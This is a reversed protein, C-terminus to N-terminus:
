EVVSFWSHKVDGCLAQIKLYESGFGVVIEVIWRRIRRLGCFINQVVRFFTWNFLGLIKNKVEQICM